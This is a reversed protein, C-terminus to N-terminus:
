IQRSEALTVFVGAIGFYFGVAICRPASCSLGTMASGATVPPVTTPQLSWKTGNWGEGFTQPQSNPALDGVATCASASSCSVGTLAISTVSLQYNPPPVTTQATWRTGNWRDALPQGNALPDGNATMGTGTATCASDATCSIASLTGNPAGTPLLVHHATWRSGNWVEALPLPQTDGIGNVLFGAASCAHASTCSVSNFGTQEAVRPLKRMTWKTGNWREAFAVAGVFPAYYTGVAMCARPATCSVGTLAV